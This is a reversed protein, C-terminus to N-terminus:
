DQPKSTEVAKGGSRWYRLVIDPVPPPNAELAARREAEAQQKEEYALKM